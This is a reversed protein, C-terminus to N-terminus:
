SCRSCLRRKFNKVGPIDPIVLEVGAALIIVDPKLEEAERKGAPRGLRVHVGLRSLEYLYYEVIWKLKEKGPIRSAMNLAGGLEAEKEYLHVEHGRLACIRTAEM